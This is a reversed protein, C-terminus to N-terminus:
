INMGSFGVDLLMEAFERGTILTINKEAAKKLAEKSYKDATTIVWVIRSYGDNSISLNEYYDSIQGIAWIDTEKDYFKAQIYLILKLNEFTAIIDVDGKKDEYNKPPINVSSAGSKHCYWKILYELKDPNLKKKITDLVTDTINLVIESRLNIPSNKKFSQIAKDISEKLDTIDANTQQIKMRATLASDAYEYRPINKEIKKVKIIFGLDVVNDDVYLLNNKFIIKNNNTTYLNDLLNIESVPVAKELIEYVDFSRWKPVIVIDGKDMEVLFRYLTYRNRPIFQLIEECCKNLYSLGDQRIKDLIERNNFDSWGISLLDNDLLPYSVEWEYSIRHLYYKM